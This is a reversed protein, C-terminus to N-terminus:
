DLENFFSPVTRLDDFLMVFGFRRKLADKFRRVDVALGLALKLREEDGRVGKM